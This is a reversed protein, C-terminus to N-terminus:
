GIFPYMILGANLLMCVFVEEAAATVKSIIGLYVTFAAIGLHIPLVWWAGGGFVFCCILGASCVMAACAARRRVKEYLTTGGYGMCFGVTLPLYMGALWWSFRGMAFASLCVTATLVGSALFRRIWKNARGGVMYLLCALCLGMVAGCATYGIQYENM